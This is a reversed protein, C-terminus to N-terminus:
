RRSTNRIAVFLEGEDYSSCHLIIAGGKKLTISGKYIISGIKDIDFTIQGSQIETAEVYLSDSKPLSILKKEKLKLNLTERSILRYSSFNLLPNLYSAFTNLRSDMGQASNKTALIIDFELSFDQSFGDDSICLFIIIFFLIRKNIIKKFKSKM